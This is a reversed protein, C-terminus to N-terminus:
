QGDDFENRNSYVTCLVLNMSHFNRFSGILLICSTSVKNKHRKLAYM